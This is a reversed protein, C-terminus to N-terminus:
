RLATIGGPSSVVVVDGVVAWRAGDPAPAALTSRSVEGGTTTDRTVLAGDEPVLVTSSGTRADVTAPLGTASTSWLLAGSTSDLAQVTGRTWVLTTAGATTQLLDTDTGAPLPVVGRVTGDAAALSRLEDGVVVDVGGDAGALRASTAGLDATWTPTGAFGDLLVAQVAAGATGESGGVGGCRQVVAVGASGAAADTFRCGDPAPHHWRINNGTPDVTALGTPSVALVIRDTSTLTADARFGVSRYWLREGTDARLATLENCRGGTSFLVVVLQDVATAGCLRANSRTYHWAEDGTTPDLMAVGDGSTRLVRGAQVVPGAEPGATEVSWAEALEAGPSGTVRAPAAATTSSTAAADSTRWGLVAVAAVVLTVAAWIWVRVPPRRVRSVRLDHGVPPPV